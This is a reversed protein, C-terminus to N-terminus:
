CSSKRAKITQSDIFDHHSSVIECVALRFFYGYDFKNPAKRNRQLILEVKDPTNMLVEGEGTIGDISFTQLNRNYFLANSLISVRNKILFNSNLVLHQLSKNNLIVNAFEKVGAENVLVANDSLNISKLTNNQQLAKALAIGGASDIANNSLDLSLLTRNSALAEAILVAGGERMVNNYINSLTLKKITTNNKLLEALEQIRALSLDEGSLNVEELKNERIRQMIADRNRARAM